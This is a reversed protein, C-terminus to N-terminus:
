ECPRKRNSLENALRKTFVQAGAMNLHNADRWCEPPIDDALHNLYTIKHAAALSAVVNTFAACKASDLAARLPSSFPTTVLVPEAGARRVADASELIIEVIRDSEKMVPRANISQAKRSVDKAAKEPSDAFAAANVAYFGGALSSRYKHKRRLAKRLENFKRDLMVDRFLMLVDGWPRKVDKWHYLHLLAHVRASGAESLPANREDFGVHLPTVDILVTRVRGANHALLDKLRLLNQDPHSAAASFNYLRPMFAPDLASQAQSDSCVVIDCGDPVHLASIYSRRDITIVFATWITGIAIPVAMFILMRLAFRRM